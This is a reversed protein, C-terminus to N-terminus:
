TANYNNSRIFSHFLLRQKEPPVINQNKGLPDRGHLVKHQNILLLQNEKLLFRVVRKQLREELENLAIRTEETIDSKLLHSTYRFEWKSGFSFVRFPNIDRGINSLNTVEGDRFIPKSLINITHTCLENQIDSYNSILSIGGGQPDSRRCMLCVLDPPQEANVFDLHLPLHGIGRSRNPPRNLDVDVVRWHGPLLKFVRIPQGFLSIFRTVVFAPQSLESFIPGLHFVVFGNTDLLRKAELQIVKLKKPINERNCLSQTDNWIPFDWDLHFNNDDIMQAMAYDITFPDFSMDFKEQNITM